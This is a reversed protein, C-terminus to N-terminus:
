GGREPPQHTLLPSTVGKWVYEKLSARPARRSDVELPPLWDPVVALQLDPPPDHRQAMLPIAYADEVGWETLMKDVIVAHVNDSAVAIDTWGREQCLALSFAANEDTHRAHAEIVIDQDPVGLELLALRLGEAEIHPTYVAAGSAIIHDAVGAHYLEAAWSARRWLCDGIQGDLEAPCGPVILADFSRDLETPEHTWAIHALLLIM